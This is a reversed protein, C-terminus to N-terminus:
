KIKLKNDTSATAIEAASVTSGEAAYFFRPSNSANGDRCYIEWSTGTAVVSNGAVTCASVDIISLAKLDAPFDVDTGKTIDYDTAATNGAKLVGDKGDM